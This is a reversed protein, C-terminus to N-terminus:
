RHHVAHRYDLLANLHEEARTRLDLNSRNGARAAGLRASRLDTLAEIILGDLVALETRSATTVTM